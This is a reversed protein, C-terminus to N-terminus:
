CLIYASAPLSLRPAIDRRHQARRPLRKSRTCISRSKRFRREQDVLILEDIAMRFFGTTNSRESDWLTHVAVCTKAGSSEV